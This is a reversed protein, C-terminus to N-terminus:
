LVNKDVRVRIRECFDMSSARSGACLQEHGRSWGFKGNKRVAHAGAQTLEAAPQPDLCEGLEIRGAFLQPPAGPAAAFVPV